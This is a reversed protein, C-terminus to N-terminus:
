AGLRVVGRSLKNMVDITVRQVKDNIKEDGLYVNVAVEGKGAGAAASAAAPAGRGPGAAWGGLYGAQPAPQYTTGLEEFVGRQHRLGASLERARQRAGAGKIGAFPTAAREEIARGARTQFGLAGKVGEYRRSLWGGEEYGPIKRARGAEGRLAGGVGTALYPLTVGAAVAGGVMGAAGLAGGGFARAGVTAMGRGINAAAPIGAIRGAGAGAGAAGRGAAGAGAAGVGALKPAVRGVLGPLGTLLLRIKLLWGAVVGLAIGWLVVKPHLAVFRAFGKVIALVHPLVAALAKLVGLVAGKWLDFIKGTEAKIAAWREKGFAREFYPEVLGAMERVAGVISEKITQGMRASVAEFETGGVRWSAVFAKTDTELKDFTEGFKTEIWATADAIGTAIAQGFKEGAGRESLGQVFERLLAITNRLTPELAKAFEVQLKQVDGRFAKWQGAVTDLQASQMQFARNTGTIKREMEVLEKVNDKLVVVMTAARIGFVKVIGEYDMQAQKLTRLVALLGRQKINIDALQLGYKKLVATGKSAVDVSKALMMRFQTGAMSAELGRDVVMALAAVTQELSMGFQQASTAAYPLSVALRDVNMRSSGIAAAMVNVIRNMQLAELNFAKMTSTTLEAVVGMDALTGEALALVGPAAAMTENLALGASNLSYFAQAIETAMKNSQIALVLGYDFLLKKGKELAEGFVGTVTMANMVSQEYDAFANVSRRTFETVIATGAIALITILRRLWRIASGIARVGFHLLRKAAFGVAGGFARFGRVGARAMGRLGRSAADKLGVVISVKFSKM